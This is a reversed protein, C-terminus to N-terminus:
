LTQFILKREYIYDNTYHMFIEMEYTSKSKLNDILFEETYMSIENSINTNLFYRIKYRLYFKM